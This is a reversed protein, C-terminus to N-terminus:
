ETRDLRAVLLLGIEANFGVSMDVMTIKVDGDNSSHIEVSVCHTCGSGFSGQLVSPIGLPGVCLVLLEIPILCPVLIFLAICTSGLRM